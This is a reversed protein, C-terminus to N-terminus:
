RPRPDDRNGFDVVEFRAQPTAAMTATSGDVCEDVAADLM